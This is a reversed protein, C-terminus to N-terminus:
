TAWFERRNLSSVVDGSLEPEGDYMKLENDSYTSYGCCAMGDRRKKNDTAPTWVNIRLCDESPQGDEWEFMFAEDDHNWGGRRGDFTNTFTQPSVAGWFMSNRIGTWPTPEAPPM